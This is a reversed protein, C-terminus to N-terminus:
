KLRSGFTLNKYRKDSHTMFGSNRKIFNIISSYSGNNSKEIGTTAWFILGRLETDTIEVIKSNSKFSNIVNVKNYKSYKSIIFEALRKAEKEGLVGGIYGNNGWEVGFSFGFVDATSAKNYESIRINGAGHVEFYVSPIKNNKIYDANEIKKREYNWRHFAISLWNTKGKPELLNFFLHLLNM